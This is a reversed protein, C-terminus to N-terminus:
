DLSINMPRIVEGWRKIEANVYGAFERPNSGVPTAGLIKIRALVTEDKLAEAIAASLKDVIPAPTGVPAFVGYWSTVDYGPLTEAIAPLDPALPSRKATTVGLGTLRKDKIFPLAENAFVMNAQGGM